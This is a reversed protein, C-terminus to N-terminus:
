RTVKYFLFKLESDNITSTLDSLQKLNARLNIKKSKILSRQMPLESFRDENLEFLKNCSGQLNDPIKKTNNIEVLANRYKPVNSANKTLLQNDLIIYPQNLFPKTPGDFTARGSKVTCLFTQM